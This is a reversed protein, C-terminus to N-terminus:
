RAREVFDDEIHHSDIEVADIEYGEEDYRYQTASVSFGTQRAIELVESWREVKQGNIEFVTHHRM